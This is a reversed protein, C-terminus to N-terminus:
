VVVAEDAIRRDVTRKSVGAWAAADAVTAGRAVAALAV